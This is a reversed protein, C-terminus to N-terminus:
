FRAGCRLGVGYSLWTTADAGGYVIGPLLLADVGAGGYIKEWRVLVTVSPDVYVNNVTITDSRSSSSGGSASTVVDAKALLSPDTYFVVADGAGIEPRVILETSSSLPARLEYGVIAGALLSRYSVDVDTGGLFDVVRAGVFVHGFTLAAHGGFGDGFPNAGGHIPATVYLADGGVDFHIPTSSEESEQPAEPEPQTSTPPSSPEDDPASPEWGQAGSTRSSFLALALVTTSAARRAMASTM